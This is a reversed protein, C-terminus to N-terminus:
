RATQVELPRRCLLASHIGVQMTAAYHLVPYIGM